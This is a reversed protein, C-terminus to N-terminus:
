ETLFVKTKGKNDTEIKIKNEAFLKVSLPLIEHEIKLVRKQLTEANDTPYVEVCKQMILAGTDTGEDVFHVSAGTIKAGYNLVAEHVKLGYYGPGSFSPILSPHINIIRNRFQQIFEPSLIRLYGALVIFDINYEKLKSLININYQEESGAEKRSIFVHPINADEARKLGYASKINSIVLGIEAPIYGSKANDIIAQLNTGGGSILVALRKMEM